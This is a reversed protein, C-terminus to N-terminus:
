DYYACVAFLYPFLNFGDTVISSILSVEMERCTYEFTLLKCDIPIM